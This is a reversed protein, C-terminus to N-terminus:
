LILYHKSICSVADCSSCSHIIYILNQHQSSDVTLIDPDKYNSGHHEATKDGQLEHSGQHYWAHRGTGCTLYWYIYLSNQSDYTSHNWRNLPKMILLIKFFIGGLLKWRIIHFKFFEFIEFILLHSCVVSEDKHHLKICFILMIQHITASFM